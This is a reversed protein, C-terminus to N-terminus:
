GLLTQLMKVNGLAARTTLQNSNADYTNSTVGGHPDTITLVQGLGNYTLETPTAPFTGTKDRTVRQRGVGVQICKLMVSVSRLSRPEFSYM